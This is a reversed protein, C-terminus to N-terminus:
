GNQCLRSRQFIFFMVIFYFIIVHVTPLYLGFLSSAFVPLTSSFITLGLRQRFDMYVANLRSFGIFVAACLYFVIQIILILVLNIGLLPLLVNRGYGSQTMLSNFEDIREPSLVVDDSFEERISDPMSQMLRDGYMRTYLEHPSIRVMSFTLPFTLCFTVLLFHVVLWFTGIKKIHEFLLNIRQENKWTFAGLTVTILYDNM